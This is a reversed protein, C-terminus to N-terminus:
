FEEGIFYKMNVIKNYLLHYKGFSLDEHWHGCFYHDFQCSSIIHDIMKQTPDPYIWNGKRGAIIPALSQPCTHAIIIDVTRNHKELNVACNNTDAYSPLEDAWWSIGEIRHAKDISAAGGFTLIKIGDIVYVEGRRLHYINDSVKGVVGGFKEERPLANLMPHNDHNGDIFLLTWPKENLWEMWYIENKSPIPNFILGFDGTVIIYDDRTLYASEPWNVESLKSFEGHTDGTIYIM